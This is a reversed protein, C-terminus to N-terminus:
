QAPIVPAPRRRKQIWKLAKVALEQESNSLAPKNLRGDERWSFYGRGQPDDEPRGIIVHDLFEIGLFECVKRIATTIAIDQSSPAPQGSPHNHAVVIASANGLIAVRMVDRPSVLTASTTGLSVLHRGRPHNKRDLLIVWFAEQEPREDFADTLYTAVRQPTSLASFALARPKPEYILRAELIQM